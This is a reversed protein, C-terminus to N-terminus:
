DSRGLGGVHEAFLNAQPPQGVAIDQERNAADPDPSLGGTTGAQDPGEASTWRFGGSPTRIDGFM